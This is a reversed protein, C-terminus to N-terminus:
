SSPLKIVPCVFSKVVGIDTAAGPPRLGGNDEKSHLEVPAQAVEAPPRRRHVRPLDRFEATV